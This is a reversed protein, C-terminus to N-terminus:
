RGSDELTETLQEESTLFVLCQYGQYQDWDSEVPYIRFVDLEGRPRYPTGIYAEFDPICQEAILRDIDREGPYPDNGDGLEGVSFVEADHPEDCSRTDLRSVEDDGEDPLDVCQGVKLDEVATTGAIENAVLGWVLGGVALGLLGLIWGIRAKALGTRQGASRKVERAGLLGFIIALIPVVMTMFLLISCLGLVFGALAKGSRGTSSSSDSYPYQM